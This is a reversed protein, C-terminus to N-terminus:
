APGDSGFPFRGLAEWPGGLYRWLLLGEARAAWPEFGDRLAALTARAEDPSVKNQVTVHPRWRQRDQPTLVDAWTQALTERLAGVEPALVRLAAGRGLSVPEVVRVASPPAAACAAALVEGVEREREGPLHHFLTVHAPIRNLSPPFYRRRLADLRAFSGADLGLTMILPAASM